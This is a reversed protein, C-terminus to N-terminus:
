GTSGSCALMCPANRSVHLARLQAFELAINRIMHLKIKHGKSNFGAPVPNTPVAFFPSKATGSRRKRMETGSRRVSRCFFKPRQAPCAHMVTRTFRDVSRKYSAHNVTQNTVKALKGISQRTIVACFCDNLGWGRTSAFFAGCAVLPPRGCVNM